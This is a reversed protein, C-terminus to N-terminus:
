FIALLAFVGYLLICPYAVLLKQGEMSLTITFLKSSSFGCWLVASGAIVYGVM